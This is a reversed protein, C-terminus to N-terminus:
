IDAGHGERAVNHAIQMLLAVRYFQQPEHLHSGVQTSFMPFLITIVDGTVPSLLRM